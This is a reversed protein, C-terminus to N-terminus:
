FHGTNCQRRASILDPMTVKGTRTRPEYITVAHMPTVVRSVAMPKVRVFQHNIRICARESATEPPIGHMVIMLATGLVSLRNQIVAVIRWRRHFAADNIGGMRPTLIPRRARRPGV